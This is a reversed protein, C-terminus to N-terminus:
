EDDDMDHVDGHSVYTDDDPEPLEDDDLEDHGVQEHPLVAPGPLPDDADLISDVM